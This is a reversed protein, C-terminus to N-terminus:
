FAHTIAFKEQYDNSKWEYVLGGKEDFLLVVSCFEGYGLKKRVKDDGDSLIPFKSGIYQSVLSTNLQSDPSLAIVRIDKSTFDQHGRAIDRLQRKCFNCWAGKFFLLLLKAKDQYKESDFVSGDPNELKFHYKINKEIM